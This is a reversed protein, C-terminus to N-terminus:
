LPQLGELHWFRQGEPFWSYLRVDCLDTDLCPGMGTVDFPTKIEVPTEDGPLGGDKSSYLLLWVTTEDPERTLGPHTRANGDSRLYQGDPLQLRVKRLPEDIVEITWPVPVESRTFLGDDICLYGHGDSSRIAAAFKAVEM